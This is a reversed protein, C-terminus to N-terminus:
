RFGYRTDDYVHKIRESFRKNWKFSTGEVNCVEQLNWKVPQLKQDSNKKLEVLIKKKINYKLM